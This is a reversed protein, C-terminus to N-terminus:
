LVSDLYDTLFTKSDINMKKKLRNKSVKISGASISRYQAIEKNSFKLKTLLCIDIETETLNSHLELLKIRYKILLSESQENLNQVDQTIKEKNKLDFILGDIEKKIEVEDYSKLSKLNRLLEKTNSNNLKKEIAFDTLYSEQLKIKHKLKEDELLIFQKELEEKKRKNKTYQYYFIGVIIFAVLTFIWLFNFFFLERKDLTHQKQLTEKAKREIEIKENAQAVLFASVIKNKQNIEFESETNILHELEKVKSMQTKIIRVKGQHISLELLLKEYVLQRELDGTKIRSKFDLIVKQANEEQNLLLYANIMRDYIDLEDLLYKEGAVCKQFYGLAQRYEGKKFFCEGINSQINKKFSKEENPFFRSNTTRKEELIDLSKYFYNLAQNLKGKRISTIGINNNASAKAIFDGLKESELLQKEFYFTASDLENLKLYLVGITGLQYYNNLHNTPHNIEKKYFDLALSYAQVEYFIEGFAINYHSYQISDGRNLKKAKLLYALATSYDKKRRRLKGLDTLITIKRAKSLSLFDGKYQKLLVQEYEEYKGQAFLSNDGQSFLDTPTQFLIAIGIIFKM